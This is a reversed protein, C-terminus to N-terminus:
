SNKNAIFMGRVIKDTEYNDMIKEMPFYATVNEKLSFDTKWRVLNEKSKYNFNWGLLLVPINRQKLIKVTNAYFGQTSVLVVMDMSKYLSFMALDNILDYNPNKAFNVYSTPYHIQYGFKQLFNKFNDEKQQIVSNINNHEATHVHYYHKDIILPVKKQLRKRVEFLIFHYLGPLFIRSKAAHHRLYYNNVKLFTYGDIFISVRFPNVSNQM